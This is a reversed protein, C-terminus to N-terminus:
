KNSCLQLLGSVQFQALMNLLEKVNNFNVDIQSPDITKAFSSIILAADNVNTLSKRKSSGCRLCNACVTNAVKITSAAVKDLKYLLPRIKTTDRSNAQITASVSATALYIIATRVADSCKTGNAIFSIVSTAVIIEKETL